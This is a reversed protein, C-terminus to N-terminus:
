PRFIKDVRADVLGLKLKSFYLIARENDIWNLGVPEGQLLESVYYKKGFCKIEGNTRVKRIEFHSPYSVEPMSDFYTRQSAHYVDAPRKGKLAQHPREHNYENRFADFSKQQEKFDAKPPSAVAEKLTRHMREHRGNQEPHGLEIREPMIGLKLWWISLSTLAGIGLGAFPQGNDTRIADPLGYEIFAKKFGEMTEKLRPGPLGDCVLLFRSYNDTITLPYCYPKGVRFQGKFDASWIHNPAECESFPETHAAVKKRYKRPKVLGTKKLIDGITSAAPWEEQPENLLLWDRLKVPGWKPYRHKLAILRSQKDYSTVNPHHHRAHSRRKLAHEGEEQYRNILKYGTKRSIGYRKCLDTFDFEKKLWDGIFKLKETEAQTNQWIM